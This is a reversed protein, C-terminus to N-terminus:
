NPSFNMQTRTARNLPDRVLRRQCTPCLDFEFRKPGTEPLKFQATGELSAIEDAIQDLHDDQSSPEHVANEPDFAAAVEIRAVYREESIHRGCLDCTFHQM